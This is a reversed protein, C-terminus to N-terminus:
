ITRWFRWFFAAAAALAFIGVEFARGFLTVVGFRSPQLCIQVAPITYELFSFEDWGMSCNPAGDPVFLDWGFDAAPPSVATCMSVVPEPEEIPPLPSTSVYYNTNAGQYQGGWLYIEGFGVGVTFPTMDYTGVDVARVWINPSTEFTIQPPVLLYEPGWTYRYVFTNPPPSGSAWDGTYGGTGAELVEVRAYLTTNANSSWRAATDDHAWGQFKLLNTEVQYCRDSACSIVQTVPVPTPPTGTPTVTPNIAACDGCEVWWLPSPTYTGWGVPTGEPCDFALPTPTVTVTPPMWTATETVQLNPAAQASLVGLVALLLLMGLVLFALKLSRSM